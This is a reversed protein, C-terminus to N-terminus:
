LMTQFRDWANRALDDTIAEVAYSGAFPDSVKNLHSEELLIHSTNRAIRAMMKNGSDEAQITLANCGGALGAIASITSKLM